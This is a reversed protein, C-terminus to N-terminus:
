RTFVGKGKHFKRLLRPLAERPNGPDALGFVARMHLGDGALKMEGPSSANCGVHRLLGAYYIDRTDDDSLGLRRALAVGLLCTRLATDQPLGTGIDAARALAAALEAMRLTESM